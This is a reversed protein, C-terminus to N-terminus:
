RHATRPAFRVARKIKYADRGALFVAAGHTDIRRVPESAGHASPRALLAFIESQDAVVHANLAQRTIAAASAQMAVM